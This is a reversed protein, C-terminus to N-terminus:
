ESPSNKMEKSIVLALREVLQNAAEQRIRERAALKATTRAVESGGIETYTMSVALTKPAYESTSHDHFIAYQLQYNLTKPLLGYDSNLELEDDNISQKFIQIVIDSDSSVVGYGQARLSAALKFRLDPESSKIQVTYGYKDSESLYPDTGRLKFGCGSLMFMLALVLTLSQVTLVRKM